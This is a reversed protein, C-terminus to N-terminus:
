LLTSSSIQGFTNNPLKILLDGSFNTGDDDPSAIYTNRRLSSTGWKFVVVENFALAQNGPTATDKDAFALQLAGQLNGTSIVGRNWVTAVTFPLDIKDGQGVNFDTIFDLAALNSDPLGPYVFTDAGAGGTLVDAGDLGTILDDGLLGNIQNVGPDGTLTDNFNSGNFNGSSTIVVGQNQQTNDNIITGIATIADTSGGAFTANSPNSLQLSLTEDSEETGDGTVTFPVQLALVGPNFTLTQPGTAATYDVGASATGSTVAYSVQIPQTSTRSLRVTFAAETNTPAAGEVVSVNNVSIEPLSSTQTIVYAPNGASQNGATDTVEASYSVTQGAVLVRRDTYSWNTSGATVTAIGLFTSGHFVRVTEDTTLPASLSGSLLLAASGTSTGGNGIVSGTTGENVSSFTATTTPATLDVTIAAANQSPTTSTNGALDTQRVRITGSAYTGAALTFSTGAGPTWSGGGNTSFAWTAATEIGSVTVTGNNTIGDSGSSGTDSALAFTPAAPALTDVSFGFAASTGTIGGDNTQSATITKGSGQGITSLNSATLTYSFAGNADTTTTGLLTRSAGSGLFISVDRNAEASGVVANDGSLGSVASDDGGIASIAVSPAANAVVTVTLSSQGTAPALRLPIAETADQLTYTHEGLSVNSLSWTLLGSAPTTQTAVVVGNDLLQVSRGPLAVSNLVFSRKSTINDTATGTESTDDATALDLLNFRSALLDTGTGNADSLLGATSTLGAVDGLSFLVAGGDTAGQFTATQGYSTGNAGSVLGITRTAIEYAFIDTASSAADSFAIGDNGFRSADAATFYVLRSDASVGVLTVNAAAAQTTSAPSNSILHNTQATGANNVGNSLDVLYANVGYQDDWGTAGGSRDSNIFGGYSSDWVFANSDPTFFRRYNRVAAWAGYSLNRGNSNSANVLRITGTQLDALFLADGSIAVSFGGSAAQMDLVFAAYRGNPSVTLSGSRYNGGLADTTSSIAHSLLDLTGSSPDYRFLDARNTDADGSFGFATANNASFYVYKGDIKEFSLATAASTTISGASARSILKLTGDALNVAILDTTGSANDSFGFASADAASFVAWGNTTTGLPTPAVGASTTPSAGSRSLLRIQGTQLDTAFLDSVAPTADSFATGSNGFKSADAATFLVYRGDASLTVDRVDGAQSQLHGVAASHSLLQQSGTALDVAVIDRSPVAGEDLMAATLNAGSAQLLSVGYGDGNLGTAVPASTGVSDWDSNLPQGYKAATAQVLLGSSTDTLELKVAKEGGNDSAQVWFTLRGAAPRKITVASVSAVVGDNTIWGGSLQFDLKTPDIDAVRLATTRTNGTSNPYGGELLTWTSAAPKGSSSFGGIKEVYDTTYIAKRGDATIGVFEAQRSSTTSASSGATILRLEQSTNDYALLDSYPGSSLANTDAFTTGGNGFATVGNTGFVVYRGDASTGGHVVPAGAATITDAAGHTVLQVSGDQVNALVLNGPLSIETIATIGPGTWGVSVHDGGSGELHQVEVYYRQGAQLNIAASKQSAYKNWQQFGTWGGAPVSAIVSGKNAATDDSSVYLKSDDDGSIYFTYAGTAPATIWGTIRRSYDNGVDQATTLKTLTGSYVPPTTWTNTNFATSGSWREETFPQDGPVAYTILGQDPSRVALISGVPTAAAATADGSNIARSILQLPDVFLQSRVTFSRADTLAVNGAGDTVEARFSHDGDALAPTTLSWTGNAAATTSAVLADGDYVRVQPGAVATGSLGLTTDRTVDGANISAALGTDTIASAALSYTSVSAPTAESLASPGVEFASFSGLFASAPMLQRAFGPGSWAVSLHDGYIDERQYARLVYRSGAVLALPASQQSDATDWAQYNVDPSSAIEVEQRPNDWPAITLRGADRAAIWFSYDGTTQPTFVGTVRRSYDDAVDRPPDFESLTGSYAPPSSWANNTYTDQGSWREEKIRQGNVVVTAQTLASSGLNDTARVTLQLQLSSLPLAQPNVLSIRGQSDIAFAPTASAELRPNGALIAWSSISRGAAPTAVIQGLLTGTAESRGTFATISDLQPANADVVTVTHTSPGIIRAGNADVLRLTLTEVAENSSDVLAALNLAKAVEGPAFTLTTTAIEYDSASATSSAALVEVTVTTSAASNARDLSVVISEASAQGETLTTADTLFRLYRNEASTLPGATTIPTITPIGPGTWGISVHDDGSGEQHQVEVYYRQGAVLTLPTSQQSSYKNWQQFSTFGGAPLSAVLVKSEPLESTGVYLRVGDDGSAYFTYDGSTPATIFGTLRRSFNSGVNRAATFGDLYGSYSVPSSDWSNDTFVAGGAWREEQVLGSPVVDYLTVTHRAATASLSANVPQELMISFTEASENIRDNIVRVRIARSTEGAAFSLVGNMAQIDSGAQDVFVWDIGYGLATGGDARYSVQVGGAPAPQNLTVLLDHLNDAPNRAEGWLSSLAQFGIITSGTDNDDLIYTASSNIAIPQSPSVSVLSLTISEAGEAAADDVPILRVIVANATAPITVSNTTGPIFNEVLVTGDLLRVQGTYDVGPTATGSLAYTVTLAQRSADTSDRYIYFDAPASSAEAPNAAYRSLRVRDGGAATNIPELITIQTSTDLGLSYSASPSLTLILSEDHEALGDAITPIALTVTQQGGTPLSITGTLPTFDSGSSATGTITYAVDVPAGSGGNATFVIRAIGGETVITDSYTGHVSITPLSSADKITVTGRSSAGVSYTDNFAALTLTVTEEPEGAADVLPVIAVTTTSQGAPIVVQGDLRGFDAGNYATGSLGYYVTLAEATSGTREIRFLGTDRGAESAVADVTHVTVVTADNDSLQLSAAGNQASVTYAADANVTVTLSEIAELETDDLPTITLAVSSQGAPITVSAPLGSVDALGSGSWTLHVVLPNSTAAGIRSVTFTGTDGGEAAFADTALVSVSPQALTPSTISGVALSGTTSVAGAAVSGTLTALGGRLDSVELTITINAPASQNFSRTYTQGVGVVGDSFSWRYVLQDGEADVADATFTVADFRKVSSATATFAASPATNGAFPGQQYAVDLYGDGKALVTLYMESGPLQYTRGLSAALDVPGGAVNKLVNDNRFLVVADNFEGGQAPRYELGIRPNAGISDSAITQSIGHIRGVVQRTDDAAHLRYIGPGPNVLVDNSDLWGLYTKKPVIFHDPGTGGSGMNDIQNGYENIAGGWTISNSHGLNLAHGIEHAATGPSGTWALWVSNGGGWSAGSRLARDLQVVTVNFQSSEFGLELAAQRAASQILDLGNLASDYAVHWQHSFDLTVIPTYTTTLSIRGRSNDAYFAAVENMVAQSTELSGPARNVDPFTARIFLASHNGIAESSTGPFLNRLWASGLAGSIEVDSRFALTTDSSVGAYIAGDISQLAGSDITLYYDSNGDLDWTPNIALTSGSFSLATSTAADFAEVLDGARTWLRLTGQSGRAIPLSFSLQLDASVDVLGSTTFGNLTPTAGSGSQEVAIERGDVLVVGTDQESRIVLLQSATLEEGLVRSAFLEGEDGATDRDGNLVADIHHGLEELLVRSLLKEQGGATVLDANLYIVARGNAGQAAYAGQAGAIAGADLVVLEPLELERSLLREALGAASGSDV